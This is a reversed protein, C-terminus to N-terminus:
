EVVIKRIVKNGRDAVYMIGDQDIVIGEPNNFSSALPLGNVFGQQRNGAYVSVVKEPTVKRIVNNGRDAIYVNGDQDEVLQWPDHLRANEGAGNEFGSEGWKGAFVEEDGVFKHTVPNYGIRYVVHKGKAVHYFTKGDRSWYVFSELENSKNLMEALFYETPNKPDCYYVMGDTYQTWFVYGDVPNVAVSNCHSSIGRILGRPNTFGNDRLMYSVPPYTKNDKDSAMYLTDQSISFCIGRQREGTYTFITNVYGSHDITRLGGREECVYLLGDKDITLWTPQYFTANLPDGDLGGEDGKGAFTSVMQTLHYKFKDEFIFPEKDAVSVRIQTEGSEDVSRAKIVAYIKSPSVGIIRAERNGVQVKILATDNGFNSGSIILQTTSGGEKPSFKEFIIPKSPDYPGEKTDNESCSILYFSSIFFSLFLCYYKGFFLKNKHM